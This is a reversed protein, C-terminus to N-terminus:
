SRSSSQRTYINLANWVNLFKSSIIVLVNIVHYHREDGTVKGFDVVRV